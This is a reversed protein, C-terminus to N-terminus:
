KDFLKRALNFVLCGLNIVLCIIGLVLDSANVEAFSRWIIGFSCLTGIFNLLILWGM